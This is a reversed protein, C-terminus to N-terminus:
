NGRVRLGEASGTRLDEPIGSASRVGVLYRERVGHGAHLHYLHPLHIYVAPTAQPTEKVYDVAIYRVRENEM